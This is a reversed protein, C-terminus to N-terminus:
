DPSTNLFEDIFLIFGQKCSLLTVPHTQSFFDALVNGPWRKTSRKKYFDLNYFPFVYFSTSLCLFVYFVLFGSFRCKSKEVVQNEVVQNEVDFRLVGNKTMMMAHRIVTTFLLWWFQAVETIQLFTGLAFL